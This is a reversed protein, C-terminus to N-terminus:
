TWIFPVKCNDCITQSPSAGSGRSLNRAAQYKENNWTKLFPEDLANGWDQTDFLCCPNVGGNPYVIASRWLWYCPKRRANDRIRIRDSEFTRFEEDTSLWEKEVNEVESQNTVAYFNMHEFRVADVGLEYAFAEIEKLQHENKRTVLTQWEIFPSRSKKKRKAQVIKEINAIVLEVKGNIRYEEYVDQTLGDVSVILYELGSDVMSDADIKLSLNSSIVSGMNSLHNFEIIEYADKNLFPEAWNYLFVLYLYDKLPEVISKYNDVSMRNERPIMEGQGTLCVPCKLNCASSLDVFLTYPYLEELVPNNTGLKWEVRLMNLIKRVTLHRLNSTVYYKRYRDLQQKRFNMKQEGRPM